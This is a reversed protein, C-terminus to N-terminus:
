KLQKAKTELEILHAFMDPYKGTFLKAVFEQNEKAYMEAMWTGNAISYEFNAIRDCVKVFTALPNAAIGAYYKDNAREKRNKGKENTLVYVIEAVEEGLAKKIDNYTVRCDEITDHAWCAALVIDEEHAGYLHHLYQGAVEAVQELHVTYSKGDYKHNTIDHLACAYLRAEKSIPYQNM